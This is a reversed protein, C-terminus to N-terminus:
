SPLELAAWGATSISSVTADPQSFAGSRAKKRPPIDAEILGADRYEIVLQLAPGPPVRRPLFGTALTQLFSLNM